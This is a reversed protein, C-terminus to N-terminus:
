DTQEDTNEEEEQTKADQEKMFKKDEEELWVVAELPTKSSGDPMLICRPADNALIKEMLFTGTNAETFNANAASACCLGIAGIYDRDLMARSIYQRNNGLCGYHQIHQNPTYEARINAPFDYGSLGSYTGYGFDLQYAACVKLKLVEDLFLATILRRIREDTMEPNGYPRRTEYHRYFFSEGFRDLTNEVVEPDYNAITTKVMFRVQSNCVSELELSKNHLFYEVLESDEGEGGTRNIKDLLGVEEIHLAAIRQYNESFMRNLDEIAAERARIDERVKRLKAEEFSNEFGRLNRRIALSRLDLKQAFKEILEVYETSDKKTLSRLLLVEEGTVPKDKFYWPVLRTILSQLFHWKKYDLREIFVLACKREELLYVRAKCKLNQEIFKSVDLLPKADSYMAVFGGDTDVKKFSKEVSAEDRALFEHIQIFGTSNGDCAFETSRLFSRVCDRPTSTELDISRYRSSSRGVTVREEKPVREHLLARLTAVFSTDGNYSTGDINQFLGDADLNTLTLSSLVDSFM